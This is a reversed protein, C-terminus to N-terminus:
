TFKFVQEAVLPHPNDWPQTQGTQHAVIAMAITKLTAAGDALTPVPQGNVLARLGTQMIAVLDMHYPAIPTISTERHTHYIPSNWRGPENEPQRFWQWQAPPTDTLLIKGREYTFQQTIGVMSNALITLSLQGGCPYECVLSGGLDEFQEGRPSPITVTQLSGSVKSPYSGFLWNALDLLHVGNCGLGIAGSSAHIHVLKGAKLQDLVAPQYAPLFRRYFPVMVRPPNPHQALFTEMAAMEAMSQASPKEVVIHPINRHVLAELMAFRDFNPRADIALDFAENPVDELNKYHPIDAALPETVGPDVTTLQLADGFEKQLADVYRRGMRGLAILLVKM